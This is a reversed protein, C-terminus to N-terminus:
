PLSGSGPLFQTPDGPVLGLSIGSLSSGGPSALVSGTAGLPATQLMLGGSGGLAAGSGAMNAAGLSRRDSNLPDGSAKWTFSGGSGANGMPATSSSRPSLSRRTWAPNAPGAVPRGPALASGPTGDLPINPALTSSGCAGAAVAAAAAAASSSSGHQQAIAQPGHPKQLQGTAVPAQNPGDRFALRPSTPGRAAGRCPSAFTRAPAKAPPVYGVQQPPQQHGPSTGGGGGLGANAQHAASLRPVQGTSATGPHPAAFAQGMPSAPVQQRVTAASSTPLAASAAVGGASCSGAGGPTAPPSGGGAASNSGSGSGMAMKSRVARVSQQRLPTRTSLVRPHAGATGLAGATAPPQQQQMQHQQHVAHPSHRHPHHAHMHQSQMTLVEASPSTMLKCTEQELARNEQLLENLALKFAEHLESVEVVTDSGDSVGAAASRRIPLQSSRNPPASTCRNRPQEALEELSETGVASLPQPSGAAAAAAAAAAHGAAAAAAAAAAVSPCAGSGTSGPAVLHYNDQPTVGPFAGSGPAVPMASVSSAAGAGFGGTQRRKRLSAMSRGGAAVKESDAEELKSHLARKIVKVAEESERVARDYPDGHCSGAASGPAPASHQGSGSLHPHHQLPPAVPGPGVVAADGRIGPTGGLSRSAEVAEDEPSRLLRLTPMPPTPSVSAGGGGGASHSCSGSVAPPQAALCGMSGVSGSARDLGGPASAGASSVSTSAGLGHSTDDNKAEQPRVRWLAEVAHFLLAANSEVAVVRSTLNSHQRCKAQVDQLGQEVAELRGADIAATAPAEPATEAGEDAAAANAASARRGEAIQLEQLSEELSHLRTPLSAAAGAASRLDTELGNIRTAIECRIDTDLTDIRTNIEERVASDVAACRTSIEARLEADISEMRATFESRLQSPLDGRAALVARERGLAADVLAADHRTGIQEGSGASLAATGDLLTKTSTGLDDGGTGGGGPPLQRMEKRGAAAAEVAESAATAVQRLEEGQAKLSACFESISVRTADRDAELQRLRRDQVHQVEALIMAEASSATTPASQAALAVGSASSSTTGGASSEGAGQEAPRATTALSRVARKVYQELQQLQAQHQHARAEEKAETQRLRREIVESWWLQEARILEVVRRKLAHSTMESAPEAAALAQANVAAQAVQEAAHAAHHQMAAARVDAAAALEAGHGAAHTHVASPGGSSFTIAQDECQQPVQATPGRGAGVGAEAHWNIGLQLEAAGLPPPPGAPPPPPPAGPSEPSPPPQAESTRPQSTGQGVAARREEPNRSM